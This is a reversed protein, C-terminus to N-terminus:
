LYYLILALMLFASVPALIRVVEGRPMGGRRGIRYLNWFLWLLPLAIILEM